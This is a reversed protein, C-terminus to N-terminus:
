GKGQFSRDLVVLVFFCSSFFSENLVWHHKMNSWQIYFLCFFLLFLFFVLNWAPYWKIGGVGNYVNYDLVEIWGGM